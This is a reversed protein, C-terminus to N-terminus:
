TKAKSMLVIGLGAFVLNAIWVSLLPPLSGNKGLSTGIALFGIYFFATVITFVFGIATWVLARQGTPFIFPLAVGLLALIFIAFPFAIKLHFNVEETRPDSGMERLLRIQYRLEKLPMALLQDEEKNERIFERPQERVKWNFVEFRYCEVVEGAETFVRRVGNELRWEGPQWVGSEADIREEVRRDPTLHLVIVGSMHGALADFHRAQLIWNGPLSRTIWDRRYQYSDDSKQEIKVRKILRARPTTAPIVAEIFILILAVLALAALLIPRAIRFFSVGCSRLAILENHRGLQGLSFLASLLVAMPMVQVLYYPLRYVYYLVILTVAPRHEVFGRMDDVMEAIVYLGVFVLTTFLLAQFFEKLLYRDITKM